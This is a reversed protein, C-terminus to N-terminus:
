RAFSPCCWEGRRFSTRSLPAAQLPGGKLVSRFVPGASIEAAALWTQLAQWRTLDVAARGEEALAKFVAATQETTDTVTLSLM